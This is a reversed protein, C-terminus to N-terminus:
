GDNSCSPGPNIYLMTKFYKCAMVNELGSPTYLLVAVFLLCLYETKTKFCVKQLLHISKGMM